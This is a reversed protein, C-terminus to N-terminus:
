RPIGIRIGYQFGMPLTELPKLGFDSGEATFDILKIGM